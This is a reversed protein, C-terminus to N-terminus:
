KKAAEREMFEAIALRILQSYKLGGKKKGLRKLEALQKDEIWM